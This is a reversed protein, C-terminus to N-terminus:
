PYREALLSQIASETIDYAGEGIRIYRIHGTKDILYM